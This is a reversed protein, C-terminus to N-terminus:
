RFLPHPCADQAERLEISLVHFRGELLRYDIRMEKVQNQLLTVLKAELDRVESAHGCGCVLLAILVSRSLM